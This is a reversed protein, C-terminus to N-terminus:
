KEESFFLRRINKDVLASLEEPSTGRIEAIFRYTHEVNVPTNITGRLPVPALYPSDTELLIREDPVTKILEIMAEMKSRKTYTVSGSFSIYWGESLFAKAEQAGYSYCHIIGNNYGVEKICNLTDEFADRSHIISPLKMQRALELQMKFLEKEGDFMTQDFDSECRGDVGSPNWHHDLGFEGLALIKRHLTDQDASNEAQAINNKLIEMQNFRDKIAEPSPWIGAAFYLFNRVKDALSVDKIQSISSDLTAQRTLLDDCETGIDLGFFCNREAMKTLFEVGNATTGLFGDITTHNYHFHTDSFMAAIITFAPDKLLYCPHLHPM